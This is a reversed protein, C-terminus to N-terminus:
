YCCTGFSNLSGSLLSVGCYSSINGAGVNALRSADSPHRTVVTTALTLTLCCFRFALLCLELSSLRIQCASAVCYPTDLQLWSPTSRLVFHLKHHCCVQWIVALVSM